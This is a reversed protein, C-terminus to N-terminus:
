VMLMLLRRSSADMPMRPDPIRISLLGPRRSSFLYLSPGTVRSEWIESAMLLRRDIDGDNMIMWRTPRKERTIKSEALEPHNIISLCFVPFNNWVAQFPSRKRTDRPLPQHILSGRGLPDVKPSVLYGMGAPVVEGRMRRSSGEDM